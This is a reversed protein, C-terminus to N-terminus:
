DNGSQVRPALVRHRPPAHGGVVLLGTYLAHIYLKPAFEVVGYVFQEIKRFVWPSVANEPYDSARRLLDIGIRFNRCIKARM